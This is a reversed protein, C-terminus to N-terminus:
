LLERGFGVAQLGTRYDRYNSPNDLDTRKKRSAGSSRQQDFVGGRPLDAQYGQYDLVALAEAKV